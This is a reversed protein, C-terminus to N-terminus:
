PEGHDDHEASLAELESDHQLQQDKLAKAALSRAETIKETLRALEAAHQQQKSELKKRIANLTTQAESVQDELGALEADLEDQQPGDRPSDGDDDFASLGFTSAM